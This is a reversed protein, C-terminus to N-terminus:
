EFAFELHEICEESLSILIKLFSSIHRPRQRVLRALSFIHCFQSNEAKGRMERMLLMVGDLRRV